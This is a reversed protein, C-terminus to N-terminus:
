ETSEKFKMNVNEILDSWILDFKNFASFGINTVLVAM